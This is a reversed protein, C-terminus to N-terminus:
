GHFSLIFFSQIKVLILGFVFLGSNLVCFLGDFLVGDYGM